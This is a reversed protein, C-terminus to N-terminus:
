NQHRNQLKSRHQLHHSHDHHQHHHNNHHSRYDNRLRNHYIIKIYLIPLINPGICFFSTPILLHQYHYNNHRHCLFSRLLYFTSCQFIVRSIYFAPSSWWTIYQCHNRLNFNPYMCWAAMKVLKQALVLASQKQSM